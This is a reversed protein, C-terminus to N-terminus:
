GNTNDKAKTTIPKIGTTPTVQSRAALTGIILLVTNAINAYASFHTELTAIVNQCVVVVAGVTAVPERRLRNLFKM